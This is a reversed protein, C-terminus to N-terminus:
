KLKPRKMIPKSGGKPKAPKVRPKSVKKVASQQDKDVSDSKLTFKRRIDNILYLKQSTFSKPHVEEFLQEWEIWVEPKAKKFAGADIKKSILYENFDM